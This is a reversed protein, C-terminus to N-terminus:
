VVDRAALLSLLVTNCEPLPDSRGSVAQGGNERGVSDALVARPVGNCGAARPVGAIGVIGVAGLADIAPFASRDQKGEM